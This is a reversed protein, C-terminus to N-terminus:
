EQLDANVVPVALLQQQLVHAHEALWVQRMLTGLYIMFVHLAGKSSRARGVSVIDMDCRRRQPLAGAAHPCHQRLLEALVQMQMRGWTTSM